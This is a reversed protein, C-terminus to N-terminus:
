IKLTNQAKEVVQKEENSLHYSSQGTKIPKAYVRSEERSNISSLVIGDGDQNLLALAFSLDSGMNEFANFRVLEARDVSKRLKEEVKILRLNQKEMQSDANEVEHLYKELLQDLTKGSMFTQLALHAKEFKKLRKRLSFILLYQILILVLIIIGLIVWGYIPIGSIYDMM